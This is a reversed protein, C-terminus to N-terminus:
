HINKTNPVIVGNAGKHSMFLHFILSAAILVPSTNFQCSDGSLDIYLLLLKFM